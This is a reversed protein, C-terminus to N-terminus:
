NSWGLPSPCCKFAVCREVKYRQIGEYCLILLLEREHWRRLSSKYKILTAHVMDGLRCMNDWAYAYLISTNITTIDLAQIKPTTHCM